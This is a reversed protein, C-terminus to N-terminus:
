MADLRAGDLARSVDAPSEQGLVGRGRDSREALNSGDIVRRVRFVGRERAVQCRSVNFRISRLAAAGLAAVGAAVLLFGRPGPALLLALLAAIAAVTVVGQAVALAAATNRGPPPQRVLLPLALLDRFVVFVRSLGYNSTGSGRVRDQTPEEGVRAGDVGLIAPLFRNMGKPLQAGVLVERRYVKLGCGTDYVPVGSLAAICSNAIRSPLVRTFFEEQRQARRGSVVDLHDRELRRLFRPLDHPDNQGDGDLTLVHQGRATAFGASLAAAEGFNGDLDVVRLHPDRVAILILRDLTGDRSGDNVFLIEYPRGIEAAVESVEDHLRDVNGEENYVPIVFSVAPAPAGSV